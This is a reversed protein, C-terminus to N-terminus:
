MSVSFSVYIRNNGYDFDSRNSFQRVYNYALGITLWKSFVYGTSLEATVVYDKATTPPYQKMAGALSALVSQKPSVTYKTALALDKSAVYDSLGTSEDFTGASQINFELMRLPAWNM